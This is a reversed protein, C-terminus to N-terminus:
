EDDDIKRRPAKKKPAPAPTDDEEADVDAPRVGAVARKGAGDVRRGDENTPKDFDFGCKPCRHKTKLDEPIIEKTEPEGGGQEEDAQAADALDSLIAEFPAVGDLGLDSLDEGGAALDRLIEELKGGDWQGHHGNLLLNLKKERLEDVKVISVLGKTEGSKLLAKLRQHGGVVMLTGDDRRNVVITDVMGYEALSSDLKRAGENSLVRPNDPNETLTTLDFDLIIQPKPLQTM